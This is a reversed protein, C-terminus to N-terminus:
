DRPGERGAAGGARAGAGWCVREAEVAAWGWCCRGAAGGAAAGAWGCCAGAALPPEPRKPWIALVAAYTGMKRREGKSFLFEGSQCMGGATDGDAGGDAV